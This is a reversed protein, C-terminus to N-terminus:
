VLYVGLITYILLILQILEHICSYPQRPENSNSHAYIYIYCVQTFQTNYEHAFPHHTYSLTGLFCEIWVCSVVAVFSVSCHRVSLHVCLCMYVRVAHWLRLRMENTTWLIIKFLHTYKCCCINFVVPCGATFTKASYALYFSLKLAFCIWSFVCNLSLSIFQMRVIGVSFENGKNLQKPQTWQM